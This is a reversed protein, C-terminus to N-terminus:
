EFLESNKWHSARKEMAQSESLKEKIRLCVLESHLLEISVQACWELKFIEITWKTFRRGIAICQITCISDSIWEFFYIRRHILRFSDLTEMENTKIITIQNILQTKRSNSIHLKRSTLCIRRYSVSFRCKNQARMSAYMDYRLGAGPLHSRERGAWVITISTKEIPKSPNYDSQM